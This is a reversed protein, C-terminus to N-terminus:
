KAPTPEPENTLAEVGTEGTRVRMVNEIGSVFIKGAGYKGDDCVKQAVSVVLKPDVTSVVIEVQM